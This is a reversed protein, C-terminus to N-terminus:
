FNNELEEKSCTKTDFNTKIDKILKEKLQEKNLLTKEKAM